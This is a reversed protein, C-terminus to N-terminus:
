GALVASDAGRRRLMSGRQPASTGRSGPGRLSPESEIRPLRLSRPPMAKYMGMAPCVELSPMGSLFSPAKPMKSERTGSSRRSPPGCCNPQARSRFATTGFDAPALLPLEYAANRDLSDVRAYRIKRARSVSQHRRDTYETIDSTVPHPKRLKMVERASALKAGLSRRADKELSRFHYFWSPARDSFHAAAALDFM